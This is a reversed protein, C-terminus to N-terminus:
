QKPEDGSYGRLRELATPQDGSPGGRKPQPAAEPQGANAEVQKGQKRRSKTLQKTERRREGDRHKIERAVEKRRRKADRQAWKAQRRAEKQREKAFQRAERPSLDSQPAAAILPLCMLVLGIPLLRIWKM